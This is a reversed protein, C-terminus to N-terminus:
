RKLTFIKQMLKIKTKRKSNITKKTKKKKTMSIRSLNTAVNYFKMNM